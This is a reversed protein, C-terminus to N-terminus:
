QLSRWPRRLRLDLCPVVGSEPLSVIKPSLTDIDTFYTPKSCIGDRAKVL